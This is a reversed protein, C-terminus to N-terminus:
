YAKWNPWLHEGNPRWKWNKHAQNFLGTPVRDKTDLQVMKEPTKTVQADTVFSQCIEQKKIYVDLLKNIDMPQNFLIQNDDVM